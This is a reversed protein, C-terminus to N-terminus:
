LVVQACLIMYRGVVIDNSRREKIDELAAEDSAFGFGGGLGHVM